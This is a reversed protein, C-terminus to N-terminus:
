GLFVSIDEFIRRFFGNQQALHIRQYFNEIFEKFFQSTEEAIIEAVSRKKTVRPAQSRHFNTEMIDKMPLFFCISSVCKEHLSKLDGKAFFCDGLDNQCQRAQQILESSFGFIPLQGNSEQHVNDVSLCHQSNLSPETFRNAIKKSISRSTEPSRQAKKMIRISLPSKTESGRFYESLKTAETSESFDMTIIFVFILASCMFQFPNFNFARGPNESSKMSPGCFLTSQSSQSCHPSPLSEFFYPQSSIDLKKRM